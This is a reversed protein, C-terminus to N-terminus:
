TKAATQAACFSAAAAVLSADVPKGEMAFLEVVIARERDVAPVHVECSLVQIDGEDRVFSVVPANRVGEFGLTALRLRAALLLALGGADGLFGRRALSHREDVDVPRLGRVKSIHHAWAIREGISERTATPLKALVVPEGWLDEPPTSPGDPALLAEVSLSADSGLSGRVRVVIGWAQEGAKQEARELQEDYVMDGLLAVDLENFPAEVLDDAPLAARVRTISCRACVLDDGDHQGGCRLCAAAEQM